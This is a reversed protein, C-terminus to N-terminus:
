WDNTADKATKQKSKKKSVIPSALEVGEEHDSIPDYLKAVNDRLPIEYHCLTEEHRDLGVFVIKIVESTLPNVEFVFRWAVDKPADIGNFHFLSLQSLESASHKRVRPSPKEVHDKFFKVPIGCIGFVFAQGQDKLISLFSYDPKKAANRLAQRTWARARCGYSWPSDGSSPDHWDLCNARAGQIIGSIAKIREETLDPHFQHPLKMM